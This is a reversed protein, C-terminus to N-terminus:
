ERLVKAIEARLASADVANAPVAVVCNGGPPSRAGDAKLAQLQAGQERVLRLLEDQDSTPAAAGRGGAYGLAAGLILTSVPLLFSRANM